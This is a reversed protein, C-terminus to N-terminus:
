ECSDYWIWSIIYYVSENKNIFLKYLLLKQKENVSVCPRLAM